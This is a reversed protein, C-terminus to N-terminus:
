HFDDWSVPRKTELEALKQKATDHAWKDTPDGSTSSLSTRFDSIARERDGTVAYALGRYTYTLAADPELRIAQGFDAIARAYDGKVRYTNGRNAYVEAEDPKLRIAHDFDTIARDHDGKADYVTGRNFYAAALDPQLRIAHDFDAIARARDGTTAYALGRGNYAIAFDPQLRIAQDYDAIALDYYNKGFYAGGRYAYAMALKVKSEKGEAIVASCGDLDSGQCDVSNDGSDATVVTGTAVTEAKPPKSQVLTAPRLRSAHM